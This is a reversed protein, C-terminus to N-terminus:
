RYFKAIMAVILIAAFLLIILYFSNTRAAELSLNCKDGECGYKCTEVESYNCNLGGM